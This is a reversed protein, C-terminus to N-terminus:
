IGFFGRAAEVARHVIEDLVLELWAEWLKLLAEQVVEGSIM